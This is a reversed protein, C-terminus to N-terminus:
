QGKTIGAYIVLNNFPFVPSPINNVFIKMKYIITEILVIIMLLSILSYLPRLTIKQWLHMNSFPEVNACRFYV